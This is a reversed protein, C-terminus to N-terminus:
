RASAKWPRGFRPRPMTALRSSSSPLRLSQQRPLLRTDWFAQHEVIKGGQLHWRIACELEFPIGYVSRTELSVYEGSVEFLGWVVEMNLIIEKPRFKYVHYESTFQSMLEIIGSTKFYVGGFSLPGGTAAASKWVINEDIADFLPDLDGHAFADTVRRMLLEGNV